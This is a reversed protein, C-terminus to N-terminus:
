ECARKSDAYRELGYEKLDTCKYAYDCELAYRRFTPSQSLAVIEIGVKDKKMVQDKIKQLAESIAMQVDQEISKESFLEIDIEVKM